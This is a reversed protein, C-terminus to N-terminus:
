ALHSLDVVFLQRKGEPAAQLSVKKYDRSWCPHGDLRMTKTILKLGQTNITPLTCVTEAKDSVTDLVILSIVQNNKDIIDRQDTIIYRGTPEISPHGSSNFSESLIKFDSGDYKFQCIRPTDGGPKMNRIIHEGDPHWNPHGGLPYDWVPDQGTYFVEKGDATLTFVMTNREGGGDFGPFICRLVQMIRSVQRNYKSHWFYYTGDPTPMPEPVNSAVDAVSYLLVSKGSKLDTRWVGQESSMGPPLSPPNYTDESPMGYGQQTVNLLELPFGIAYSGNRAVNYMSTEFATVKDSELDIEVMVAKGNILDNTYVYRDSGGWQVNAGTQYGWTKTKYVSQITENELDIVCVEATDGLQPIHDQFPLKTVAFYRQSPSFPTVDFYTHVYFGDDPIVRVVPVRIQDSKISKFSYKKKDLLPRSCSWIGPLIATALFGASTLVFDKRNV